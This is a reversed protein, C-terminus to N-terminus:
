DDRAEGKVGQRVWMRIHDRLEDDDYDIEPYEDLIDDIDLKLKAAERIYEGMSDGYSLRNEIKEFTKKENEIWITLTEGRDDAM